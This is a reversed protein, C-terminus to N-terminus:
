TAPCRGSAHRIQQGRNSVPYPVELHPLQDLGPLMFGNLIWFFM